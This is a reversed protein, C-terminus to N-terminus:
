FKWTLWKEFRCSKVSVKSCVKIAVSFRNGLERNRKILTITQYTHKGQYPNWRRDARNSTTVNTSNCETSLINRRKQNQQSQKKTLEYNKSNHRVLNQMSCTKDPETYCTDEVVDNAWNLGFGSNINRVIRAVRNTRVNFTENDDGKSNHLMEALRVKGQTAKKSCNDNEFDSFPTVSIINGDIYPSEDLFKVKRIGNLAPLSRSKNKLISMQRTTSAIEKESFIKDCEHYETDILDTKVYWSQGQDFTSFDREGLLHVKGISETSRAQRFNMSRDTFTKPIKHKYIEHNGKKMLKELLYSTSNNGTYEHFNNPIHSSGIEKKDQLEIKNRKLRDAQTVVDKRLNNEPKNETLTKHAELFWGNGSGLRKTQIDKRLLPDLKQFVSLDRDEKYSSNLYLSNTRKSIRRKKLSPLTNTQNNASDNKENEYYTGGDESLFKSELLNKHHVSTGGKKRHEKKNGSTLNKSGNLHNEEKLPDTAKQLSDASKSRWISKNIDYMDNAEKKTYGTRTSLSLLKISTLLIPSNKDMELHKSEKNPSSSKLKKKRNKIQHGPIAELNNDKSRLNEKTTSTYYSDLSETKVKDNENMSSSENRTKTDYKEFSSNEFCSSESQSMLRFKTEKKHAHNRMRKFGNETMYNNNQHCSTYNSNLYNNLSSEEDNEYRSIYIKDLHDLSKSRFFIKPSNRDSSDKISDSTCMPFNRERLRSSYRNRIFLSYNKNAKNMNKWSKSLSLNKIKKGKSAINKNGKMAYNDEIGTDVKGYRLMANAKFSDKFKSSLKESVNITPYRRGDKLVGNLTVTSQERTKHLRRKSASIILLLM